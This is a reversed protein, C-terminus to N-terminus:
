LVKPAVGPQKSQIADNWRDGTTINSDPSVQQQAKFEPSVIVSQSQQLVLQSPTGINLDTSIPSGGERTEVAQLTLTGTEQTPIFQKEIQETM